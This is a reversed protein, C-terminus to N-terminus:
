PKEKAAILRTLTYTDVDGGVGLISGGSPQMAFSIKAYVSTERVAVRTANADVYVDTNDPHRVVYGGAAGYGVELIHYGADDTIYNYVRYEEISVAGIIYGGPM